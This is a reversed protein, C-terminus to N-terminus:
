ARQRRCGQSVESRLGRIKRKPQDLFAIIRNAIKRFRDRQQERRGFRFERQGQVFQDLLAKERQPLQGFMGGAFQQPLGPPLEIPAFTKDPVLQEGTGKADANRLRASCPPPM